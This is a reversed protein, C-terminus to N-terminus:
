PTENMREPRAAAPEVEPQGHLYASHCAICTSTVAAFRDGVVGDDAGDVVAAALDRAAVALRTQQLFFERPLSLPLPEHPSTSAHAVVEADAIRGALVRITPRDLLVVARVLNSMTEGHQAMRRTVETQTTSTVHDPSRLRRAPAPHVAAIGISSIAILGCFVAAVMTREGGSVKLAQQKMAFSVYDKRRERAASCVRRASPPTALTM